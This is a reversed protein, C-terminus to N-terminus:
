TRNGASRARRIADLFARAAAAPNDAATVATVVAIASAGARVMDDVHGIKLGGM